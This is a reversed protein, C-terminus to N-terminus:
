STLDKWFTIPKIQESNMETYEKERFEIGFYEDLDAGYYIIDTQHVSFVPNGAEHPSEPMYRHSYVPILRPVCAYERVAKAAAAETERPREGWGEYWFANQRIDFLIGELPARLRSHIRVQNNVSFNRWEPFGQGAPLALTLLERLDPPFRLGYLTEIQQFEETTLGRDCRVGHRRFREVIVAANM